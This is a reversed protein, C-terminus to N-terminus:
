EVVNLAVFWRGARESVTASNVHAEKPLYGHEKLRIWGLRPLRIRDDNVHIPMTLTFSGVGHKRSKFKPFRARGQFFNRFATDLDRLARQPACKSSDYMWPFGIPKLRNLERHLDFATPLMIRPIPLQNMQMVELKRRLGWNYAFRAVGAHQLLLTQQANNPDLEARYARHVMM